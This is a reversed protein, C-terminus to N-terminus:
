KVSSTDWLLITGDVSGSVLTKGDPSLSVGEVSDMHGMLTKLLNGTEADWLRVTKDSSG